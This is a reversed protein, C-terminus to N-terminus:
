YNSTAAEESSWELSIEYNEDQPSQWMIRESTGEDYDVNCQLRPWALTTFCVYHLSPFHIPSHLFVLPHSFVPLPPLSLIMMPHHNSSFSSEDITATPSSAKYYITATTTTITSTAIEPSEILYTIPTCHCHHYHNPLPQSSSSKFICLSFQLLIM